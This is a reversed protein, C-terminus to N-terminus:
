SDIFVPAIVACAQSTEIGCRWTMASNRLPALIPDSLLSSIAAAANQAPAGPCIGASGNDLGCQFPQPTSSVFSRKWGAAIALSAALSTPLNFSFHANPYGPSTIAYACGVTTPPRM